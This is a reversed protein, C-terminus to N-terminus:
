NLRKITMVNKTIRTPHGCSAPSWNGGIKSWGNPVIGNCANMTAGKPKTDYREITWVNYIIRTPNGCTTPSWHDNIKIWGSPVSGACVNQVERVTGLQETAGMQQQSLAETKIQETTAPRDGSAVATGAFVTLLLLATTKLKMIRVRM